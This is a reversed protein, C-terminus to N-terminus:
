DAAFTFNGLALTAGFTCVLTFRVDALDVRVGFCRLSNSCAAALRYWFTAGFRASGFRRLPVGILDTSVTFFVLVGACVFAAATLVAVFSGAVFFGAAILAAAGAGFAGVGFTAEFVLDGAAVLDAVVLGVVLVAVFVGAAVFAAVELGAALFAAVELGVAALAVFTELVFTVRGTFFTELDAGRGFFTFRTFGSAMIEV